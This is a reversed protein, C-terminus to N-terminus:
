GPLLRGIYERGFVVVAICVAVVTGMTFIKRLMSSPTKLMWMYTTFLAGTLVGEIAGLVVFRLLRYFPIWQWNDTLLWLYAPVLLGLIAMSLSFATAFILALWLFTALLGYKYKTM